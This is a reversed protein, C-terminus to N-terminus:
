WNQEARGEMIELASNLNGQAVLSVASAFDRQAETFYAMEILHDTCEDVPSREVPFAGPLPAPTDYLDEEAIEAPEETTSAHPESPQEATRPNAHLDIRRQLRLTMEEVANEMRAGASRLDGIVRDATAPSIAGSQSLQRTAARLSNDLQRSANTLNDRASTLGSALSMRATAIGNNIEERTTEQGSQINTRATEFGSHLSARASELGSELTVRASELGSELNTRASEANADLTRRAEDFTSPHTVPFGNNQATTITIHGFRALCDLTSQVANSIRNQVDQLPPEPTGSPDV